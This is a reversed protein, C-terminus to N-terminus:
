FYHLASNDNKHVVSRKLIIMGGIFNLTSVEFVKQSISQVFTHFNVFPLLEFIIFPLTIM